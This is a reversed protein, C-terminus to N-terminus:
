LVDELKINWDYSIDEYKFWKSNRVNSCHEEEQLLIKVGDLIRKLREKAKNFCEQSMPVMDEDESLYSMEAKLLRKFGDVYKYHFIKIEQPAICRQFYYDPHWFLPRNFSDVLCHASNSYHLDPRYRYFREHYLGSKLTTGPAFPFQQSNPAINPRYHKGDILNILDTYILWANSNKFMEEIQAIYKLDIFEDADTRHLIETDPFKRHVCDIAINQLKARAKMQPEDRISGVPIYTIKDGFSKLIETTEDSSLGKPGVDYTQPISGEVVVVNGIQLCHEIKSEIIKGENLVPM